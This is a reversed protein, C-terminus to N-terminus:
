LLVNAIEILILEVVLLGLPVQKPIVVLFTVLGLLLFLLLVFLRPCQKLALSPLLGVIPAFSALQDHVDRLRPATEPSISTALAGIYVLGTVLRTAKFFKKPPPPCCPIALVAILAVLTVATTLELLQQSELLFRAVGALIFGISVILVGLIVQPTLLKPDGPRKFPAACLLLVTAVIGLVLVVLYIGPFKDLETAETLSFPFQETLQYFKVAAYTYYAGTLIFAAVRLRLAGDSWPPENGVGGASEQDQQSALLVDKQQSMHRLEDNALKITM